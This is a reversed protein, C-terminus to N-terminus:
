LRFAAVNVDTASSYTVDADGDDNAFRSAELPGIFKTSDPAVVVEVDPDFSTAGVPTRTKTDAVTVTVSGASDNFVSLFTRDGCRVTDGGGSASAYAEVAGAPSISTVSIAAM